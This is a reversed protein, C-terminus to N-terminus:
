RSKKAPSPEVEFTEGARVQSAYISNAAMLQEHTGQEAIKGNNLVVIRDADRITSLRHAIVIATRNKM